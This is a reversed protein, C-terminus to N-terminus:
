REGDDHAQSSEAFARFRAESARLQTEIRQQATVDRAVALVCREGQVEIVEASILYTGLEGKNRTTIQFNRVRGDRKLARVYEQRDEPQLWHDLELSTRGIVDQRELGTMRLYADNVELVRGDDLTNIAMADPSAAFAKALKAESAQQAREAEKRATIDMGMTLTSPQGDLEVPASAVEVWLRGGQKTRLPIERVDPVVLGRPNPKARAMVEERADPDVLDTPDMALLETRTYGTLEGLRPNVYTYRQGDTVGITAQSSEAFARFRAESARLQTETQKQATIDRAVGLVCREGQFEVVESSLLVDRTEGKVRVSVQFDRVSGDRRLLRAYEKRDEPQLWMGLELSTKGIMDQRQLGTLRVCADNVDLIRGDDLTNISM